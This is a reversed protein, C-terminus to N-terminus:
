QAVFIGREIYDKIVDDEYGLMKLVEVTNEGLGPGPLYEAPHEDGFRLPTVPIMISKGDKSVDSSEVLMENELVQPDSVLDISNLVPAAAITGCATLAEIVEERTFKKFGEDLVAVVEASKEYM